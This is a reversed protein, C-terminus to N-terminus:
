HRLMFNIIHNIHEDSYGGQTRLCEDLAHFADQRANPNDGCIWQSIYYHAADIQEAAGYNLRSLFGHTEFDYRVIGGPELRLGQLISNFPQINQQRRYAGSYSVNLTAINLVLATLIINFFLKKKM